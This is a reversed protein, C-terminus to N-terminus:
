KKRFSYIHMNCKWLKRQQIKYHILNAKLLSLHKRPMNKVKKHQGAKKKGLAYKKLSDILKMQRFLSFSNCLVLDYVTNESMVSGIAVINMSARVEPLLGWFLAGFM